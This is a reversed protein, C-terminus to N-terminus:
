RGPERDWYFDWVKGTKDGREKELVVDDEQVQIDEERKWISVSALSRSFSRCTRSLLTRSSRLLVNPFLYALRVGARKGHSRRQGLGDSTKRRKWSGSGCWRSCAASPTAATGSWLVAWRFCWSGPPPRSPCCAAAAWPSGPHATPETPNEWVRSMRWLTYTHTHIDQQQLNVSNAVTHSFVTSFRTRFSSHLITIVLRSFFMTRGCPFSVKTLRLSTETVLCTEM